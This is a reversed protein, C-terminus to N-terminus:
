FSVNPCLIDLAQMEEKIRQRVDNMTEFEDNWCGSMVAGLILNTVDPFVELSSGSTVPADGTVLEYLFSGYAFIETQVTAVLPSERCNPHRHSASYYVLPIEKDISSGAFDALLLNLSDDIFFNRCNIDAHLIGYTHCFAMAESAQEAWRYLLENPFRGGNKRYQRISGHSAYALEIGYPTRGYYGLISSPRDPLNQIREYVKAEIRCREGEEDDTLPIKIVKNTGPYRFCIGSTGAGIINDASIGSPMSLVGHSGM